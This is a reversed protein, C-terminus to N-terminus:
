ESLRRSCAEPLSLLREVGIFDRAPTSTLTLTDECICQLAAKM